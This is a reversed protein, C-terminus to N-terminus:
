QRGLKQLIKASRPDNPNAKAWDLAQKDKGSLEPQVPEMPKNV